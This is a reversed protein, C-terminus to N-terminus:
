VARLMPRPDVRDLYDTLAVYEPSPDEDAPVLRFQLLRSRSDIALLVTEGTAGFFPARYVGRSRLASRPVQSLSVPALTVPPAVEAARAADSPVAHPPTPSDYALSCVAGYTTSRAQM